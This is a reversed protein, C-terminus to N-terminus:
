LIPSEEVNMKEMLSQFDSYPAITNKNIKPDDKVEEIKVLCEIKLLCISPHLVHFLNILLDAIDEDFVDRDMDQYKIGENAMMDFLENATNFYGNEEMHNKLKELDINTEIVRHIVNYFLNLWLTFPSRKPWIKEGDLLVGKYKDM